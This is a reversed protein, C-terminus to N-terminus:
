DEGNGGIGLPAGTDIPFLGMAPRWSVLKTGAISSKIRGTPVAYQHSIVGLISQVDCQHADPRSTLNSLLRPHSKPLGDVLVEGDNVRIGKFIETRGKAPPTLLIKVEVQAKSGPVYVLKANADLLFGRVRDFAPVAWPVEELLLLVGALRLRPQKLLVADDDFYTACMAGCLANEAISSDGQSLKELTAPLQDVEQGGASAEFIACLIRGLRTAQMAGSQVETQWGALLAKKKADGGALYTEADAAVSARMIGALSQSPQVPATAGALGGTIPLQPESPTPLPAPPSEGEASPESSAGGNVPQATRLTGPAPVARSSAKASAKARKEEDEEVRAQIAELVDPRASAARWASVSCPDGRKREVEEVLGSLWAPNVMFFKGGGHREFEHVLLPQPLAVDEEKERSPRDFIRGDQQLVHASSLWDPKEDRSILVAVPAAASPAGNLSTLWGTRRKAQLQVDLLLERWIVVDGLANQGKTDDKFGPPVRHSLRIEGSVGLERLIPDLDSKLLRDNVFEIVEQAGITVRDEDAKVVGRLEDFRAILRRVEAIYGSRDSFGKQICRLDDAQEAAMQVFERHKTEVDKAVTAINKKVTGLVLHRQLEHAAWVPVLTRRAACWTLFDRRAAASLGVVWMLTSTDLYLRSEPDDLAKAVNARYDVLDRVYPDILM